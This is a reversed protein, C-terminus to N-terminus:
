ADYINLITPIKKLNGLVHHNIHALSGMLVKFFPIDNMSEIPNNTSIFM